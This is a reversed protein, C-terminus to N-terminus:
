GFTTVFSEEADVTLGQKELKKITQKNLDTFTYLHSNMKKGTLLPKMSKGAVHSVFLLSKLHVSDM